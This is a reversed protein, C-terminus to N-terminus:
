YCSKIVTKLLEKEYNIMRFCIGKFADVNREELNIFFSDSSLFKTQM